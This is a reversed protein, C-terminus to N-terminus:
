PKILVQMIDCLFRLKNAFFKRLTGVYGTIDVMTHSGRVYGQGIVVSLGVPMGTAMLMSMKGGQIGLGDCEFYMLMVTCFNCRVCRVIYIYHRCSKKLVLGIFYYGDM